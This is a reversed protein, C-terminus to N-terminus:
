PIQKARTKGGGGSPGGGIMGSIGRGGQAASYKKGVGGVGGSAQERRGALPNGRKVGRRIDEGKSPRHKKKAWFKRKEKGEERKKTEDRM